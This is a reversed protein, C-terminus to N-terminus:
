DIMRDLAEWGISPFANAVDRYVVAHPRKVRRLKWTTAHTILIAAERRRGKRFGHSFYRGEKTAGSWIGRYFAKGVPCLVNILRIAQCGRRGNSKGIQVAESDQWSNPVKGEEYMANWMQHLLRGTDTSYKWVM